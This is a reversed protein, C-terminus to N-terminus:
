PRRRRRTKVFEMEEKEEDMKVNFDIIDNLRRGTRASYLIKLVDFHKNIPWTYAPRGYSKHKIKEPPLLVSGSSDM